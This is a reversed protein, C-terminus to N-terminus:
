DEQAFGEDILKIIATTCDNERSAYHTDSVSLILSLNSSKAYTEM